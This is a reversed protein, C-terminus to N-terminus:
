NTIPLIWTNGQYDDNKELSNRDILEVALGTTSQIDSVEVDAGYINGMVNTMQYQKDQLGLVVAFEKPRELKSFVVEVFVKFKNNGIHKSVSIGPMPILKGDGYIIIKNKNSSFTISRMQYAFSKPEIRRISLPSISYLKYSNNEQILGFSVQKVLRVKKSNNIAGSVNINYEILQNYTSYNTIGWRREIINNLQLYDLLTDGPIRNWLYPNKSETQNKIGFVPTGDGSFSKNFVPTGDGTLLVPTGDGTFDTKYKEPQNYPISSFIDNTKLYNVIKKEEDPNKKPPEKPIEDLEFKVISSKDKQLVNVKEPKKQSDSINTSNQCGFLSFTLFILTINKKM